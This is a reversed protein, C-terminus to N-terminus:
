ALQDPKGTPIAQDAEEREVSILPLGREYLEDLLHDLAAEDPLVGTLTTVPPADVRTQSDIHLGEVQTARGDLVGQVRIVIEVPRKDSSM